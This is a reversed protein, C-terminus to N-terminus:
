PAGTPDPFNSHSPLRKPLESQKGLPSNPSAVAAKVRDPDVIQEETACMVTSICTARWKPNPASDCGLGLLIHFLANYITVTSLNKSHFMWM